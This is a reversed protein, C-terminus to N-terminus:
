GRLVQQLLTNYVRLCSRSAIPEIYGKDAKGYARGAMFWGVVAAGVSLVMLCTNRRAPAHEEEAQALRRAEAKGTQAESAFVPELFKEFGIPEAWLSQPLGLYGAVLSCVALMVLPVDDVDAIRPHSARSRPERAVRRLVDHVDAPVHLVGDDARDCVGVVWLVRYAGSERSWAQWLIEDKSFFGALRPIGAIALTGILMTWFTTPIKDRLGGM